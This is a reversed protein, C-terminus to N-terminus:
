AVTGDDDEYYYGGEMFYRFIEELDRTEKGLEEAYFYGADAWPLCGKGQRFAESREWCFHRHRGEDVWRFDEVMVLCVSDGHKSRKVLCEMYAQEQVQMELLAQEESLFFYTARREGNIHFDEPGERNM